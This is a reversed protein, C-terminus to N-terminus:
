DPHFVKVLPVDLQLTQEKVEENRREKDGAM